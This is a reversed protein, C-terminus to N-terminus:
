TGDVSTAAPYREFVDPHVTRCSARLVRSAADSPKLPDLRHEAFTRSAAFFSRARSPDREVRTRLNVQVVDASHTWAQTAAQLRLLVRTRMPCRRRGRWADRRTPLSEPSDQSSGLSRLFAHAVARHTGRSQADSSRQLAGGATRSACQPDAHVSSIQSTRHRPFRARPAEGFASALTHRRAIIRSRTRGRSRPGWVAPLAFRRKRGTGLWGFFHADRGSGAVDHEAANESKPRTSPAAGARWKREEAEEAEDEARKRTWQLARARKSEREM